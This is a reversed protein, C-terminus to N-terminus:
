MLRGWNHWWEEAADRADYNTESIHGNWIQALAENDSDTPHLSFRFAQNRADRDPGPPLTLSYLVHRDGITLTRKKRIVNYGILL